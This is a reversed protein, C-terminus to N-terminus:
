LLSRITTGVAVGLDNAVHEAYTRPSNGDTSPAYIEYFQLLTMDPRYITSQGTCANILLNKLANYGDTYTRFKAFRGNAVANLQNRFVLNGPNNNVWAPTGNPYKSNEGPAYYGEM